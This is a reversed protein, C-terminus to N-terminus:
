IVKGCLGAVNSDLYYLKQKDITIIDIAWAKFQIVDGVKLGLSADVDPGIALITGQEQIQAGQQIVLNGAASDPIDLLLKEGLPQIKIKKM